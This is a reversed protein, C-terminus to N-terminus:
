YEICKRRGIYQLIRSLTLAAGVLLLCKTPLVLKQSIILMLYPSSICSISFQMLNARWYCRYYRSFRLWFGYVNLFLNLILPLYDPIHRSFPYYPLTHDSVIDGSVTRSSTHLLAVLFSFVHLSLEIFFQRYWLLHHVRLGLYRFWDDKWHFILHAAHLVPGNM